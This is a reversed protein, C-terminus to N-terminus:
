TIADLRINRWGEPNVLELRASNIRTIDCSVSELISSARQESHIDDAVCDDSQLRGAMMQKEVCM